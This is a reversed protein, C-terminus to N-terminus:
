DIGLAYFSFISSQVNHIDGIIFTSSLIKAGVSCSVSTDCILFIFSSDVSFLDSSRGSQNERLNIHNTNCFVFYVPVM